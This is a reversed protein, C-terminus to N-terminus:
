RRGSRGRTNNSMTTVYPRKIIVSVNKETIIIIYRKHSLKVRFDPLFCYKLLILIMLFKLILELIMWYPSCTPVM